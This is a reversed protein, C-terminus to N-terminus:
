DYQVGDKAACGSLSHQTLMKDTAKPMRKHLESYRLTEKMLHYLIISKYKGGIMSLTGAVPCTFEKEAM